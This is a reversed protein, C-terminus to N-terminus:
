LRERANALQAVDRDLNAQVQRLSAELPRRDLTFLEQGKVVEDGDKFNVSTLEGTTQARVAVASIAEGIAIVDITVPVSKRTVTAASVSVAAQVGPPPASQAPLTKGDADCGTLALAAAVMGFGLLCTVRTM